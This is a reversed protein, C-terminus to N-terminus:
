ENMKKIFIGKDLEDYALELEEQTNMVIPGGWAIPENLPKAAFLAFRIGEEGAKMLFDQARDFLVATRALILQDQGKGFRGSGEILYIFLNSDPDTKMQFIEEPPVQIDLVLADVHNGKVGSIGRFVGSIIKVVSTGQTVTVIHDSSLDFYRPDTMKDKAPLNVWLQFGLLHEVPQPMEQHLVGRGATMWQCQGDGIIGHNGLSDEHEIRGRILYTVTEIGRHPHWPFGKIYDESHTSDFADLLLFPDFDRVDRHAIVRLLRVGAGDIQRTGRVTKIVDRIAM